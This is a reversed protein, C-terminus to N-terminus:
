SVLVTKFWSSFPSVKTMVRLPRVIPRISGNVTGFDRPQASMM